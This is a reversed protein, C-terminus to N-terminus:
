HQHAGPARAGIPAVRYSITVTGAKEFVLTGTIPQGERIQEKLEMFMVHYGGPKLEVTEGPKIELGKALERMRMVGDTVAMEHVEFRGAMPFTGGILRDPMSGANTITMFGGAVKAGGPTARTWPATITLAGLKVSQAAAAPTGHGAHQAFAAVPLITACALAIAAVRGFRIISM